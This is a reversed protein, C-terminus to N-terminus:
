LQTYLYKESTSLFSPLFHIPRFNSEMKRQTGKGFTKSKLAKGMAVFGFLGFFLSSFFFLFSLFFPINCHCFDKNLKFSLCQQMM